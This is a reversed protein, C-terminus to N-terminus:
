AASDCPAERLPREESRMSNIDTAVHEVSAPTKGSQKADTTKATSAGAQDLSEGSLPRASTSTARGVGPMAWEATERDFTVRYAESKLSNAVLTKAEGARSHPPFGEILLLDRSDKVALRDLAPGQLDKITLGASAM